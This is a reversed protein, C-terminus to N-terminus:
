APVQNRRRSASTRVGQSVPTALAILAAPEPQPAVTTPSETTTSVMTKRRQRCRSTKM